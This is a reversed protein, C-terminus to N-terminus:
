RFASRVQPNSLVVISWIGFPLGIVCCVSCPFLSLIAATMALGYSELRKMKLAGFLVLGYILFPIVSGFGMGIMQVIREAEDAPPVGLGMPDLGVVFALTVNVVVLALALVGYIMMANAPGAVRSLADDRLPANETGPTSVPDPTQFPNVSVPYSSGTSATGSGEPTKPSYPNPSSFTSDFDTADAPATTPVEQVHGCQTCRAQKGADEDATRLLRDCQACRFDITM